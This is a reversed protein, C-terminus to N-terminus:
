VDTNNKSLTLKDPSRDDTEEKYQNVETKM